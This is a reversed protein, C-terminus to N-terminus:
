YVFDNGYVKSRVEEIIGNALKRAEEETAAKIMAYILNGKKHEYQYSGELVSETAIECSIIENKAFIIKYTRM